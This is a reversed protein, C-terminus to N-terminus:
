ALDGVVFDEDESEGGEMPKADGVEGQMRTVAVATVGDAAALDYRDTADVGVGLDCGSM